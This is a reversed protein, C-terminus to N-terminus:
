SGDPDMVLVREGQQNLEYCGPCYDQYESHTPDILGTPEVHAQNRPFVQGCEACTAYEETSAIARLGAMDEEM